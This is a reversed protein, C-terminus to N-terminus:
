PMAVLSIAENQISLLNYWIAKKRTQWLPCLGAKSYNLFIKFYFASTTHKKLQMFCISEMNGHMQETFLDCLVNDPWSHSICTQECLAQSIGEFPKDVASTLKDARLHCLCILGVTLCFEKFIQENSFIYLNDSWLFSEIWEVLRYPWPWRKIM